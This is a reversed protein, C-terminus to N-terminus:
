AGVIQPVRDRVQLLVANAVAIQPVQLLKTASRILAIVSVAVVTGYVANDSSKVSREGRLEAPVRSHYPTQAKRERGDTEYRTVFLSM